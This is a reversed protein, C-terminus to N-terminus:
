AGKVAGADPNLRSDIATEVARRARRVAGAALDNVRSYDVGHEYVACLAHGMGWTGFGAVLAKVAFRFYTTQRCLGRAGARLALGIALVAVVEYGREAKLGLGFSAALKLLMGIETMAMMPYNAGPVFILAGTAMNTLAASTIIRNAAAIRMFPFNAAFATDKETRDLIWRALSELLHTKDTAAILGLLPSDATIFPAEVSSECVVCVPVGAIVLRQVADELHASGGTLVLMVDTDPKPLEPDATLRAVRVLASTTRPVFAEKIATVALAPATTDVYVGVRVPADSEMATNLGFQLAQSAASFPQQM